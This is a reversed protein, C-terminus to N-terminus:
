PVCVELRVDDVYMVAAAGDWSGDNRMGLRLTFAQGAYHGVDVELQTWGATTERVIRVIRWSGGEPRLLIYGYDGDGGSEPVNYWLTLRATRWAPIRFPQEASSYSFRNEALDAMGLQLSRQGTRATADTYRARYPTNAM